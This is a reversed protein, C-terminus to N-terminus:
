RFAATAAAYGASCGLVGLGVSTLVNAAATQLHGPQLLELTQASFTSFTTFGGLLGTM